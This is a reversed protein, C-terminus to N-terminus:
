PRPESLNRLAATIEDYSKRARGNGLMGVKNGAFADSFDQAADLLALVDSGHYNLWDGLASHSDRSDLRDHEALLARLDSEASVQGAGRGQWLARVMSRASLLLGGM